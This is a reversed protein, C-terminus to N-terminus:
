ARLPQHGQLLASLMAPPSISIKLMRQASWLILRATKECVGKLKATNSSQSGGIIIMMDVRQSLESAEKQRDQTANCITDFVNANTCLIKIIKPIGAM